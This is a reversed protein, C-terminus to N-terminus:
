VLADTIYWKLESSNAEKKESIEVWECRPRQGVPIDIELCEKPMEYNLCCFDLLSLKCIKKITEKRLSSVNFRRPYSRGRIVEPVPAGVTHAISELSEQMNKTDMIYDFPIAFGKKSSIMPMQLTLHSDFPSIGDYDEVFTEFAETLKRVGEKTDFLEAYKDYDWGWFPKMFRVYQKPILEQHRLKRVFMEDYSAYFRSVPNRMSVTTITKSSSTSFINRSGRLFEKCTGTSYEKAEFDAKMVHRGTSSGSKPLLYYYLDYKESYTCM